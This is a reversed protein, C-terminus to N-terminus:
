REAPMIWQTAPRVSGGVGGDGLTRLVNSRRDDGSAAAFLEFYEGEVDRLKNHPDNERLLCLRAAAYYLDMYKDPWDLYNTDATAERSWAATAVTASDYWGPDRLYTLEYGYVTSGPAPYLLLQMQNPDSRKQVVAYARPESAGADGANLWWADPPVVEALGEARSMDYLSELRKFNAPLDILPYVIRYTEGGATAALLGPSRITLTTNSGRVTIEYWNRAGDIEIFANSTVIDSPLTAGTITLSTAKAGAANVTGTTYQATTLVGITSFMFRWEFPRLLRLANDLARDMADDAVNGYASGFNDRLYTILTSKQKTLAM